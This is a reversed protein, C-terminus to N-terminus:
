AEIGLGVAIALSSADEPPTVKKGLVVNAFPTAVRVPAGLGRQVEAAFGALQVGGGSLMLEAIDPTGPRSQYFRLSSLLERVLQAIEGRAAERAAEFQMPSLGAPPESAELDLAHKIPEAQSPALNLSRAIAVDIAGSGWELVRMFDCVDGDAVAFVTREHGVFVAVAARKDDAERPPITARLLAFADLDIGALRLGAHRCVDVYRAVLERHAFVVLVRRLLEGDPGPEEGLIVHDLV